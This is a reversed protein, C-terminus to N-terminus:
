EAEKFERIIDRKGNRKITLWWGGLKVPRFNKEIEFGGEGQGYGDKYSGTAVYSVTEKQLNGAKSKRIQVTSPDHWKQHTHGRLIIDADPYQMVELQVDLMGKSRKASGGFGHHFHINTRFTNGSSKYSIKDDVEIFGSYNGKQINRNYPKLGEILRHLPDTDHKEKVKSEHNGESIMAINKAYPTLFEISDQVVMDLYSYDKSLYRDSIDGPKSRPDGYTCMVDFWDGLILIYAGAEVAENLHKKLLKEDCKLSDFHIDSIILFDQKDSLKSDFEMRIVGAGKREVEKLQM